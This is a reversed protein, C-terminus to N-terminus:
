ARCSLLTPLLVLHPPRVRDRAQGPGQLPDSDGSRRAAEWRTLCLEAEVGCGHTTFTLSADVEVGLISISQQLPLRKGELFFAPPHADERRRSIYLVQTKEPALTIQWPLQLVANVRDVLHNRDSTFTLTSDDAYAQAEPVLQLIDNFYVCWLLPGLVSGLSFVVNPSHHSVLQLDSTFVM